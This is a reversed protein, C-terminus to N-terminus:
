RKDGEKPKEGFYFYLGCRINANYLIRRRTARGFIREFEPYATIVYASWAPLAHFARSFKKYLSSLERKEGLREGYPPNAALVGYKEVSTFDGADALSFRIDGAVGARMAHEKAVSIARPSIDGAFIPALEGRFVEEKAAERERALVPPACKWATFDFTRMAGPAINRAYLAAEIALTGSGCFPDCFVRERGYYSDEVIAAATNERLPADYTLVRYGRKHLGDGSTDLTVTAVDGFISVGVIAREGKEDFQPAGHEKLRTLIAKKVVGGAAKIAMLRSQFSKGDILIRAHPTLFEEWPLARVGAFLDDFTPAPFEGMGLLVREGARLRLNLRAVDEWGGELAIRGRIAPAEGYGLRSLERKVSAEIGTAVPIYLRM